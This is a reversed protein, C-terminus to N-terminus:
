RCWGNHGNRSSHSRRQDWDVRDRDASPGRPINPPSVALQRPPMSNRLARPGTPPPNRFVPTTSSIPSPAPRTNYPYGKLARPQKPPSVSRPVYVPRPQEHTAPSPSTKGIEENVHSPRQPLTKHPFLPQFALPGKLRDILSFPRGNPHHPQVSAIRPEILEQKAERTGPSAALQPRSPLLIPPKTPPRSPLSSLNSHVGNALPLAGGVNTASPIEEEKLTGAGKLKAAPKEVPGSNKEVGSSGCNESSPDEFVAIVEEVGGAAEGPDEKDAIEEGDSVLSLNITVPSAQICKTLMEEERQKKKRLAFDKLSMKVKPAPPPQSVPSHTPSRATPPPMPPTPERADAPPSLSALRPLPSRSAPPQHLSHSKQVQMQAASEEEPSAMCVDESTRTMRVSGEGEESMRVVDSAQVLPTDVVSESLPRLSRESIEPSLPAPPVGERRSYPLIVNSVGAPPTSAVSDPASSIPRHIWRSTASSKSGPLLATPGALSHVLSPTSVPAETNTEPASPYALTLDDNGDDGDHDVEEPYDEGLEVHSVEEEDQHEIGGLHVRPQAPLPSVEHRMCSLPLTSILSSTVYDYQVLAQSAVSSPSPDDSAPSTLRRFPRWDQTPSGLLQAATAHSPPQLSAPHGSPSLCQNNQRPSPTQQRPLSPHQHHFYKQQEQPPSSPKVQGNSLQGREVDRDDERDKQCGDPGFQDIGQAQQFQFKQAQSISGTVMPSLLSLKAFSTAPSTSPPLHGPHSRHVAFSKTQSSMTTPDLSAPM